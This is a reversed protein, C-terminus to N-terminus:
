GAVAKLLSHGTIKRAAASAGAVSVAYVEELMLIAFFARFKPHNRGCKQQQCV